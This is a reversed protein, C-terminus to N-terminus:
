KLDSISLNLVRLGYNLFALLSFGIAAISYYDVEIFTFWLIGVIPTLVILTKSFVKIIKVNRKQEAIKKLYYGSIILSYISIFVSIPFFLMGFLLILLQKIGFYIKERTSFDNTNKLYTFFYTIIYFGRCILLLILSKTFIQELTM